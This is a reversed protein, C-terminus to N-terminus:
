EKTRCRQKRPDLGTSQRRWPGVISKGIQGRLNCNARQTASVISFEEAGLVEWAADLPINKADHSSNELVLSFLPWQSRFFDTMAIRNTFFNAVNFVIKPDRESYSSTWTYELNSIWVDSERWYYIWNSITVIFQFLLINFRGMGFGWFKYVLLAISPPHFSLNTRSLKNRDWTVTAVCFATTMEWRFSHSDASKQVRIHFFYEDNIRRKDKVVSTGLRGVVDFSHDRLTYVLLDLIFKGPHIYGKAGGVQLLSLCLLWGSIEVLLTM